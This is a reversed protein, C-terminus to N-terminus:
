LRRVLEEGAKRERPLDGKGQVAEPLFSEDESKAGIALMILPQTTEPLDFQERVAEPSFGAMPRAVLKLETAAFILSMVSMGLDFQFYERGDPIRCDDEPAAYGVVLLPARKAWPENGKSLCARGKERAEDGVLFLYRWPQNNFCSPPLRAAEVLTEIVAEPLPETKIARTAYRENLLQLVKSEM